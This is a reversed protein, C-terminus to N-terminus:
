ESRDTQLVSIELIKARELLDEKTVHEYLIAALLRVSLPASEWDALSPTSGALLVDKRMHDFVGNVQTEITTERFFDEPALIEALMYISVPPLELFSAIKRLTQESLTGSWRAGTIVDSLHTPSVDLLEAADKQLLGSREIKDKLAQILALGRVTRKKPEAGTRRPM